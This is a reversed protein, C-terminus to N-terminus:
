KIPSGDVPSYEVNANPNWANKAAARDELRQNTLLAQNSLDRNATDKGYDIMDEMMGRDQMSNYMGMIGTGMGIIDSGMSLNDKSLFGNDGFIGSLSSSGGASPVGGFGTPLSEASLQDFSAQDFYNGQAGFGENDGGIGFGKLLETINLSDLISKM